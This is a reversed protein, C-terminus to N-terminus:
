DEELGMLGVEFRLIEEFRLAGFTRMKELKRWL